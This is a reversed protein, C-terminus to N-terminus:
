HMGAGLMSRGPGLVNSVKVDLCAAGDDRLIGFGEGYLVSGIKEARDQFKAPTVKLLLARGSRHAVM